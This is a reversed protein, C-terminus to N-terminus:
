TCEFHRHGEKGCNYCGTSRADVFNGGRDERGRGRGRRQTSFPRRADPDYDSPRNRRAENMVLQSGVKPEAPAPAQGGEENVNGFKRM